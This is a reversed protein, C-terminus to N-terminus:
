QETTATNSELKRGCMPCYKIKTICGVCGSDGTYAFINFGNEDMFIYNENKDENESLIHNCFECM